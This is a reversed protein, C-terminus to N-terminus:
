DIKVLESSRGSSNQARFRTNPARVIRYRAEVLNYIGFSALGLAVVSYLAGGFPLGRIWNLAEVMGGAQEPAVSVAAYVVFCGLIVFLIGRSALGYVCVIRLPKRGCAAEDLYREYKRLVGKAITVSGGIAFGIGIVGVLYRGFPQAMVWEAVSRQGDANGQSGLGLAHDVAYYALGSYTIASGFLAVRIATGKLDNRQNDANLISQALRWIVFGMLGLAILGVWIRGFPQGLLTDLASKTDSKGSSLGSFLALGGVLFFVAARAAYGARAIWQFETASHM